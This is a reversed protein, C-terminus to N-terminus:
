LLALSLLTRDVQTRHRNNVLTIHDYVKSPNIPKSYQWINIL